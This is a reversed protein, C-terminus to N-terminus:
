CGACALAVDAGVRCFVFVALDHAGAVWRGGAAGVGRAYKGGEGAAPGGGEEVGYWGESVSLM